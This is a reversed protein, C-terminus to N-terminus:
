KKKNFHDIIRQNFVKTFNKDIQPIVHDGTPHLLLHKKKSSIANYLCAIGIPPSVLDTLGATIYSECTINSAFNVMDYYSTAAIVKKNSANNYFNPWGSRRKNKALYGGHDCMAPVEAILLTVEKNTAAAVIAQAGGQSGGRVILTKGNWQPLSKVYDIARMVRLFMDRFYIKEPDDKNFHAYNKLTTQSLNKYYSKPCTNELGHANVMFTIAKSGYGGLSVAKAVGAGQFFVLVPLTKAKANRPMTLIGTLPQSGACSVKVDYVALTSKKNSGIEKKSIEKLPVSALYRKQLAWFQNFDKPKHSSATLKKPAIMIGCSTTQPQNKLQLVKNNKDLLKLRVFYWAPTSFKKNLIIENDLSTYGSSYLIGNIFEEYFIQADLPIDKCNAIKGRYTIPTNVKVTSVNPTIYSIFKNDKALLSLTFVIALIIYLKKLM